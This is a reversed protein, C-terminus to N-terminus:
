FRFTVPGLCGYGPALLAEDSPRSLPDSFPYLGAGMWSGRREIRDSTRGKRRCKKLERRSRLGASFMGFEAFRSIARARISVAPHADGNEDPDAVRLRVSAGADLWVAAVAGPDC